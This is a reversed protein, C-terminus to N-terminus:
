SKKTELILRIWHKGRIYSRILRKYSNIKLTVSFFFAALTEQREILLIEINRQLKIVNIRRLEVTLRRCMPILLFVIRTMPRVPRVEKYLLCGIM